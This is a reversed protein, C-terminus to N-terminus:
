LTEAKKVCILYELNGVKMKHEKSEVILYPKLHFTDKNYFLEDFSGLGCFM